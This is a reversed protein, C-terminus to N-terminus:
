GRGIGGGDEGKQTLRTGWGKIVRYAGESGQDGCNAQADNRSPSTPIRSADLIHPPDRECFSDIHPPEDVYPIPM